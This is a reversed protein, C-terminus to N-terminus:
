ASTKMRFLEVLLYERVKTEWNGIAAEVETISKVSGPHLVQDRLTHRRIDSSSYVMKCIRRWVEIGNRHGLPLEVNNLVAAADDLLALCLWNYIHGNLTDYSIRMTDRDVPM